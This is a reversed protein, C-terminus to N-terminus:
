NSIREGLLTSKAGSSGGVSGKSLKPQLKIKRYLAVTEKM